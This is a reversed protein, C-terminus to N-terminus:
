LIQLCGQNWDEQHLTEERQVTAIWTESEILGTPEDTTKAVSTGDTMEAISSEETERFIEATDPPRVVSGNVSFIQAIPATTLLADVVVVAAETSSRIAEVEVEDLLDM